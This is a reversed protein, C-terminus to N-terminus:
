MKDQNQKLREKSHVLPDNVGKQLVHQCVRLESTLKKFTEKDQEDLCKDIARKLLSIKSIVEAQKKQDLHFHETRIKPEESRYDSLKTLRLGCKCLTENVNLVQFENNGCVKCSLKRM